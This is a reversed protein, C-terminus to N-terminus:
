FQGTKQEIFHSHEEIRLMQIKILTLVRSQLTNVIVIFKKHVGFAIIQLM